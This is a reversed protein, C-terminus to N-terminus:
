LFVAQFLPRFHKWQRPAGFLKIGGQELRLSPLRNGHQLIVDADMDIPCPEHNWYLIENFNQEERVVNNACVFVITLVHLFKEVGVDSHPVVDIVQSLVHKGRPVSGVVHLLEGLEDADTTTVM